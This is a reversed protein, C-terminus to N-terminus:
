TRRAAALRASTAVYAAAGARLLLASRLGLAGAVSGIIAPGLVFGVYGMATMGGVIAGPRARGGSAHALLLPWCMSVGGAALVLGAGALWAIPAVVLLVIGAAATAAGFTVGRAAGHRGAIPGFLVRAAAAISYAVVASTAGVVLGSPLHTRLFLVGWLETGNEVVAGVAFAVGVLVLGERRLVALAGTFPLREGSGGAPLTARSVLFALMWASAGVATWTWRWSMHNAVLIGTAAAGAAAAANFWAHFRVLAGPRDALGATAAVNMVVDLSGGVTVIGVLVAGFALVGRVFAGGVLLSGWAALTAALVHATGRRETLAGGAANTLAAGAIAISLLLGLTAHSLGLEREVDAAAVSWSGWYAGFLVFSAAVLHLSSRKRVTVEDDQFRPLVHV